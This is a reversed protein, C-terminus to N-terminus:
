IEAEVKPIGHVASTFSLVIIFYNPGPSGSTRKADLRNGASLVDAFRCQNDLKEPLHLNAPDFGVLVTLSM